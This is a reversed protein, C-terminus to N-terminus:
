EQFRQGIGPHIVTTAPAALGAQRARELTYRSNFIFRGARSVDASAPVGCLREVIRGALRRKNPSWTRIWQDHEWGYVLWDDHVILVAPIGARRVQEILSLSICGM